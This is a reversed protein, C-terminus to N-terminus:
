FDCIWFFLGVCQQIQGAHGQCSCKDQGDVLNLRIDPFANKLYLVLHWYKPYYLTFWQEYIVAVAASLHCMAVIFFYLVNIAKRKPIYYIINSM